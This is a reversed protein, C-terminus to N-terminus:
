PIRLLTRPSRFRMRPGPSQRLSPRSGQYGGPFPRTGTSRSWNSLFDQNRQTVPERPNQFEYVLEHMRPGPSQEFRCVESPRSATAAAQYGWKVGPRFHFFLFKVGELPFGPQTAHRTVNGHIRSNTSWNMASCKVCSSCNTNSSYAFLSTPCFLAAIVGAKICSSPAQHPCSTCLSLKQCNTASSDAM